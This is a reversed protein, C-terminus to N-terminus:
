DPASAQLMEASVRRVSPHTLGLRENPCAHGVVRNRGGLKAAYLAADAERFVQDVSGGTGSCQCAVGVSGSLAIPQGMDNLVVTSQILRRCREAVKKASHCTVGDLVLVFEEGGFRAAIDTPRLAGRLVEAVRQLVRDGALHGHTDNIVKFFDLDIIIVAVPISEQRNLLATLREQMMRRNYLQTLPDIESLQRIREERERWQQLFEHSVLMVVLLFPLIFYFQSLFYFLTYAFYDADQVTRAVFLPAYPLIKTATLYALTSIAILAGLFVPVTIRSPFMIIGVFTAGTLVVGLPLSALGSSYGGSIMMAVYAVVVLALFGFSTKERDLFKLYVLAALLLLILGCANVMWSRRLEVFNVYVSLTDVLSVFIAWYAYGIIQLSTAILLLMAKTHHTLRHLSFLAKTQTITEAVMLSVRM